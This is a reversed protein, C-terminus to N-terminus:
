LVGGICTFAFPLAAESEILLYGPEIGAMQVLQVGVFRAYM